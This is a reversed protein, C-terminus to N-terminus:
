PHQIHLESNDVIREESTNIKKYIEESYKVTNTKGEQRQENDM